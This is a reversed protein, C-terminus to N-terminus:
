DQYKSGEGRGRSRSIHQSVVKAKAKMAIKTQGEQKEWEGGEKRTERPMTARGPNRWKKRCCSPKSVGKPSPKWVEGPKESAELGSEM